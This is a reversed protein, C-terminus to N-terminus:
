FFAYSSHSLPKKEIRWGERKLKKIAKQRDAGRAIYFEKRETPMTKKEVFLPM